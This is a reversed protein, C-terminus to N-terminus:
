SIHKDKDGAAKGYFVVFLFYREIRGESIQVGFRYAALWLRIKCGSFQDAVPINGVSYIYTRLIILNIRYKVILIIVAPIYLSTIKIRVQAARDSTGYVHKDSRVARYEGHPNIHLTIKQGFAAIKLLTVVNRKFPIEYLYRHFTNRYFIIAINPIM